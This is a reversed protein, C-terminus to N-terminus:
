GAAPASMHRRRHPLLEALLADTEADMPVDHAALTSSLEDAVRAVATEDGGDHAARLLDRWLTQDTPVFRLGARLAEGAGQPDDGDTEIAALRRAADVVLDRTVAPTTTRAIWSYHGTPTRALFEGRVLRLARRLLEAEDRISRASRSRNLLTCMSAWDVAVGPGLSLRGQNDRRLHPHGDAGSGLWERVREVTADLVDNGVGRPWVSAGLVSPHVGSPHLALFTTIEEALPVRTPDLVGPCRVDVAGLVGVRTEATAWLADDGTYALQPVTPRPVDASRQETRAAEFLRSVSELSSSSVRVAEASLGLLPLELAGSEDVEITWRAGPLEGATVVGFAQRNGNGLGSLREGVAKDPTRGVVVYEPVIGHRRALRGTLVDNGSLRRHNTEFDDLAAPLDDVVRLQDGAIDALGDPMAHASITLEDSWRNTALQVAIAAALQQAVVSDGTISVAGGAAELDVLMDCGEDDRGLTVLAPYPSPGDDAADTRLGAVSRDLQWIRGDDVAEWPTPADARSPALLLEVTEDSVRAAFLPPLSARGAACAAALSRLALDLFAARDDDAGARLAVEANMADPDPEAGGHHRRRQFLLAALLGSALLGGGLLEAPLTGVLGAQDDLAGDPGGPGGPDAGGSGPRVGPVGAATAVGDGAQDGHPDGQQSVHRTSDDEASPSTVREVGTADEPMVLVWGPQILRALHLSRGDPQSRGENLAFIEKYRRGDGLHREAIDWLNDHYHGQPAKVVYVKKGVLDRDERPVGALGTGPTSPTAEAVGGTTTSSGHAVGGSTSGDETVMRSISSQDTPVHADTVAAAQGAFVGTLLIAGVLSRALQQMPGGLPVARPLGRGRVASVLEVVVCVCFLLWALWVVALLVDILLDASLPQTLADRGPLSTPIPPPGALVLLLAPLGLMLLLLGLAAGLGRLLAGGDASASPRQFRAPGEARHDRTPTSM